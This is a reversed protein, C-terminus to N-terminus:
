FSAFNGYNCNAENRIYSLWNAKKHSRPLKQCFMFFAKFDSIPTWVVEDRKVATNTPAINCVVTLFSEGHNDICQLGFKQHITFWVKSTHCILAIPSDISDIIAISLCVAM